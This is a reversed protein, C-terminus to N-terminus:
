YALESSSFMAEDADMIVKELKPFLLAGEKETILPFVDRTKEWREEKPAWDFRSLTKKKAVLLMSDVHRVVQYNANDHSFEFLTQVAEADPNTTDEPLPSAEFAGALTLSRPTNKLKGGKGTLDHHNVYELKDLLVPMLDHQLYPDSVGLLAANDNEDPVWLPSDSTRIVSIMSDVSFGVLYEQNDITVVNAVVCEMYSQPLEVQGDYKTTRTLDVFPVTTHFEDARVTRMSDFNLALSSDGRFVSKGSMFALPMVFAQGVCLHSLVVVIGCLMSRMFSSSCNMVM